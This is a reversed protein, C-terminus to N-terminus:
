RADSADPVGSEIRVERFLKLLSRRMMPAEVPWVLAADRRRPALEPRDLLAHLDPDLRTHTAALSAFLPRSLVRMAGDPDGLRLRLAAIHRYVGFGPVHSRDLSPLLARAEDARGARLALTAELVHLAVEDVVDAKGEALHSAARVDDGQHLFVDAELSFAATRYFSDSNRARVRQARALSEEHRGTIALVAALWLSAFDEEPDIDLVRRFCREAGAVDADGFCRAGLNNLSPTHRPDAEIAKELAAREGPLDGSYRCVLAEAKYGDPLRPALEIARRAAALGKAAIAAPDGAMAYQLMQGQVDAVGAWARAYEPDIAIAQEFRELAERMSEPTYRDYCQRGKLYLDYARVDDPRDAGLRAAEAPALAVELASAIAAAIEAQVAFVDELTRDYREGWRQFGDRTDVLQVTIRVRDGAWRVSGQLVAEVGLEEGVRGPEQGAGRYRAVANRSAVRLGRIKSLDTLIDETIGACFYDRDPDQALNEFYLVALSRTGAGHESAAPRSAGASIEQGIAVLEGKVAEAEPREGRDKALCRRVLAVLRPPAHSPLANWDPERELIRGIVDSTTEGAFAAHGALCEYLICGLSWVDTGADVPKGRAQEPSMYPTTGLVLGAATMPAVTAGAAPADDAAGRALGFDLVKVVRGPAIMVNAPKLDRHVIGRAHAAAVAAAVQAGIEVTERASLVGRALRAFLPEGPVLELVLCPTGGADELGFLVAINPHSLSALLRAEREFRALREPEAAFAAPLAKIAVERGLRPDLARWVEGMGGAGLPAVVEYPGLRSGAALV